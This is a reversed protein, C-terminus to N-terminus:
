NRLLGTAILLINVVLTCIAVVIMLIFMKERKSEETAALILGGTLSFPSLGTYGAAIPIISYLLGPAAGSAACIAFILPFLTPVVVGMTSAFISMIGAVLCVAYPIISISISDGIYNSLYELAGAQAAVGIIMGMGCVMIITQWPVSLIAEKENGIKLLLAIVSFIIALFTVDMKNALWEMSGGVGKLLAPLILLASMIAILVLTIKQEKVFKAPKGFNLTKLKFGQFIFYALVFIVLSAIVMNRWVVITLNAAETGAFGSAEILGHTTIGNVAIPSWGGANAGCVMSIGALAPHMDSEKAIQMVIPSLVLFISVSGPGIGALVGATLFLLLPVLFTANKALYVIKKSFLELTGNKIAFAYFFTVTFMQFFLKAPWQNLVSNVSMNALLCGFIFAFAIGILGFNIKTKYGIAIIVLISVLIVINITSM